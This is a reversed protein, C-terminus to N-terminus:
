REYDDGEVDYIADVDKNNNNNNNNNNSSSSSSSSSRNKRQTLMMLSNKSVKPTVIVIVIRTNILANAFEEQFNGGKWLRKELQTENKM